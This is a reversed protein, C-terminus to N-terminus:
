SSSLNLAPKRRVFSHSIANYRKIKNKLGLSFHPFLLFFFDKCVSSVDHERSRDAQM